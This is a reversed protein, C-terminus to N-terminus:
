PPNNKDDQDASRGRLAIVAYVVASAIAIGGLVAEYQPYMAYLMLALMAVFLTATSQIRRREGIKIAFLLAGLSFCAGLTLLNLLM